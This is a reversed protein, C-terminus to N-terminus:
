FEWGILGTVTLRDKNKEWVSDNFAGFMYTTQLSTMFSRGIRLGVQSSLGYVPEGNEFGTALGIAAFPKTQREKDLAKSLDAIQTGQSEVKDALETAQGTVTDLKQATETALADEAQELAIYAEIRELLSNYDTKLDSTVKRSSNLQTELRAAHKLLEQYSIESSSTSSKQQLPIEPAKEQEPQALVETLVLAPDEAEATEAQRTPWAALSSLVLLLLLSSVLLVRSRRGWGISFTAFRRGCM